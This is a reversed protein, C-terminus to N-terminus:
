TIFLDDIFISRAYNGIPLQSIRLWQMTKDCYFILKLLKRFVEKWKKFEMEMTSQYAMSLDNRFLRYRITVDFIQETKQLRKTVMMVLGAVYLGKQSSSCM